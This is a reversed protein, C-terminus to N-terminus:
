RIVRDARALVAAPITLGIEKAARLNVQFDFKKPREVPLEAPKAGKLIKDVFDAARHFQEPRNISYTLLGGAEVYRTNPYITPLKHKRALEILPAQHAAVFAGGDILLAEARKSSATQFARENDASDKAELSLLQLKLARAIAAIENLHDAAVPSSPSWLFGTRALKPIIEKLLELRKGLIDAGVSTLGTINGGPHALSAVFGSRVAENVNVMVIPIDKTASKLALIAENGSVVIAEPRLRVMEAALGPLREVKGDFYRYEITINQGETYGLESMRKHFPKLDFTSTASTTGLYAIRFIKKPQADVPLGYAFHLTVILSALRKTNM